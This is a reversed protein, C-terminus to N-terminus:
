KLREPIEARSKGMGVLSAVRKQNSKIVRLITAQGNELDAKAAKREEVSLFTQNLLRLLFDRPQLLKRQFMRGLAHCLNM